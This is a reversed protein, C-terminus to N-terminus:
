ELRQIADEIKRRYYQEANSLKEGDYTGKGETLSEVMEVLWYSVYRKENFKTDSSEFYSSHLVSRYRQYEDETIVNSRSFRAFFQREAKVLDYLPDASRIFEWDILHEFNDSRILNGYKIDCHCVAPNSDYDISNRLVDRIRDARDSLFQGDDADELSHNFQRLLLGSSDSYGDKLSISGEDMSYWGFDDMPNDQSHLESMIKGVRSIYYELNGDEYLSEFDLPEGHIYEYIIYADDEFVGYSYINPVKLYEGDLVYEDTVKMVALYDEIDMLNSDYIKAVYTLDSDQNPKFYCTQNIGEEIFDTITSDPFERKILSKM